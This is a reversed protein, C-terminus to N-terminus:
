IHLLSRRLPVETGPAWVEVHNLYPSGLVLQPSRSAPVDRLAVLKWWRPRRSTEFIAQGQVATFDENFAGALVQAPVPDGELRSVRFDQAPASAAVIMGLLLVARWWRHSSPKGM